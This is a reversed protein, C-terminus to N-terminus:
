SGETEPREKITISTLPYADLTGSGSQIMLRATPDAIDYLGILLQYSGPSLEVPILLGHNDDILEGPSWKSTIALGGGPESDRQAAIQGDDNVLHIFIKYRKELTIETLWRLTIPLIEGPFLETPGLSASQLQIHDGFSLNLEEIRERISGAEVAYTVFRVDGVWEDLAKFTNEELWSEVLRDPDREAEGWFLAYIRKNEATIEELEEYVLEPKPSGRPIPLVPAAGDAAEDYYYTFVEWQNAANLIIAADPHDESKIRNVIGRYDARSFAPEFYMNRLSKGTTWNVGGFLVLILIIRAGSPTKPLRWIFVLGLAALLALWPISMLVFKYFLPQTTGILVTVILPTVAGVVIALGYPEKWYGKATLYVLGTLILILTIILGLSDENRSLFNGVGLWRYAGVFFLDIEDRNTARGGSQRFFIPLWPSYLLIALLVSAGVTLLQRWNKGLPEGRGCQWIVVLTLQVVLVTPFFYHTYFGAAMCFVYAAAITIRRRRSELLNVLLLCSTVALFALLEYMRAEQSYYILAPNVAVLTAAGISVWRSEQPLLKRGLSYTAAVLGIGLYVSLSRLGFESSSAGVRWVKLILYYLPPHIDSATGEIILSVTRESLRASNGEDNWFSQNDLRYFRLFASLLLVATM